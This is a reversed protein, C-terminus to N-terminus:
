VKVLKSIGEALKHWDRKYSHLSFTVHHLYGTELGTYLAVHDMMQWALYIDNGWHKVADGSRQVYTLNVKGERVMFFYGLSCPVRRVGGIFDIDKPWFIPLWLQRSDPNREIERIIDRLSRIIREQYAYDFQNDANLFEEWVEKRIEWAQGPNNYGFSIREEFEADAWERAKEGEFLFLNEPDPLGTLTYFYMPLEKTIFEDQGEIIKNQYSKPKVISGMEDLDRLVESFVQRANEYIRM